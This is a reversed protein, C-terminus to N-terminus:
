CRTISQAQLHLPPHRDERLLELGREKRHKSCTLQFMNLAERTEQIHLAVTSM